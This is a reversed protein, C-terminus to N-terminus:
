NNLIKVACGNSVNSYLWAADTVSLRVCGASVRTGLDNIEKQLPYSDGPSSFCVSHFMYGGSAFRMCYRAYTGDVMLHYGSTTHEYISFNGTPTEHGDRGTSCIMSRLLEMNKNYVETICSIRHVIIVAPAFDVVQNTATELTSQTEEATEPKEAVEPETNLKPTPAVKETSSKPTPKAEAVTPATAKSAPTVEKTPTTSPTTTETAEKTPAASPTTAASAVEKTPSAASAATPAVISSATEAASNVTATAKSATQNTCASAVCLIMTASLILVCMKKM